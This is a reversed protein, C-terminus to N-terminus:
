EQWIYMKRHLRQLHLEKGLLQNGRNKRVSNGTRRHEKNHVERVMDNEGQWIHEGGTWRAYQVTIYENRQKITRQQEKGKEIGLYRKANKM